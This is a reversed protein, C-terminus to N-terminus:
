LLLYLNMNIPLKLTLGFVFKSPWYLLFLIFSFFTSFVLGKFNRVILMM